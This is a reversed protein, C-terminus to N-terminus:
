VTQSQDKELTYRAMDRLLTWFEYQATQDLVHEHSSTSTKVTCHHVLTVSPYMSFIFNMIYLGQLNQKVAHADKLSM